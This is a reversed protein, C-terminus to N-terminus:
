ASKERFTRICGSCMTYPTMFVIYTYAIRCFISSSCGYIGATKMRCLVWPKWQGTALWLPMAILFVQAEFSDVLCPVSACPPNQSPFHNRPHADWSGLNPLLWGLWYIPLLYYFTISMYTIPSLCVYIYIYMICICIYIYAYVYKYM